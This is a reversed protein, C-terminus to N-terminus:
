FFARDRPKVVPAPPAIPNVVITPTLVKVVSEPHKLEEEVSDLWRQYAEACDQAMQTAGDCASQDWDGDEVMSQYERLEAERYAKNAKVAEEFTFPNPNEDLARDAKFFAAVTEAMRDLLCRGM